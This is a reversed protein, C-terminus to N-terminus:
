LIRAEEATNVGSIVDGVYTDNLLAGSALPYQAVNEMALQRVSRIALYSASAQGYTVTNLQYEIIPKDFSFRWLIHQFGRDKPHVLVQRYMRRLDATLAIRYFRFRLMIDILNDQLIPGVLLADNLSVGRNNKASADFVVRLKTSNSSEKLIGHHPLYVINHLDDSPNDVLSMHGLDLYERMFEVYRKRFTENGRFTRELSHLRRLAIERNDGIPM